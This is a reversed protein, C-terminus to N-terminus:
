AGRKACLDRREIGLVPHKATAALQAATRGSRIKLNNEEAFKRVLRYAEADAQELKADLVVAPLGDIRTPHLYDSYSLRNSDSQQLLMGCLREAWDPYEFVTGDVTVGLIVWEEQNRYM